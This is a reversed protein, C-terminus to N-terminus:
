SEPQNLEILNGTPDRLFAQHGAGAIHPSRFVDVGEAELATALAEVDDVQLAVHQTSTVDLGPEVVLHIQADGAQLWAGPVVVDPRSIPAFGLRALFATAEDLDRIQLAVHGIGVVGM